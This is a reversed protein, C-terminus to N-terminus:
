LCFNSNNTILKYYYKNEIENLVNDDDVSASVKYTVVFPDGFTHLVLGDGTFPMSYSHTPVDKNYVPQIVALDFTGKDIPTVLGSGFKDDDIKM